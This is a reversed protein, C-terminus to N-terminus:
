LWKVKKERENSAYTNKTNTSNNQTHILLKGIKFQFFYFIFIFFLNTAVYFRLEVNIEDIKNAQFLINELNATFDCCHTQGVYFTNGAVTLTVDVFRIQRATAMKENEDVSSDDNGIGEKKLKMWDTHTTFIRNIRFFRINELTLDTMPWYFNDCFLRSLMTCETFINNRNTEFRNLKIKVFFSFFFIHLRHQRYFTLRYHTSAISSIRMQFTRSNDSNM